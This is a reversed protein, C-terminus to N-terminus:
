RWDGCTAQWLVLAAVAATEARLIRPGLAIPRAFPLARLRAREAASFGGEPGVLVAGACSGAPRDGAPAPGQGALAEDCFWLPRGADWESLVAFLPRLPAVQPVGLAGCQESAERAHAQLRDRNMREANTFDTVVPLIRGVGLEVAKEVVFDTRAKKLPAFLLWLDPVTTQPRVQARVALAGDRRGAASVETLWEGDRGNFVVVQAGPRLRMVAFLYNAAEADLALTQGGALPQDLYLRVKSSM